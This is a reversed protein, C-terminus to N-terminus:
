STWDILLQMWRRVKYCEAGANSDTLMTHKHKHYTHEVLADEHVLLCCWEYPTQM